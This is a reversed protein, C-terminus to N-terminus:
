GAARPWGIRAARRLASRVVQRHFPAILLIYARGLRNHCHVVTSLVLTPGGAADGGQGRRLVSLRFDLHRDDEGLLVERPNSAYVKFIGIRGSGSGPASLQKATKLGFGAVLADRLAMLWGVWPAQNAFMFRALLDADAVADDPLRVEFADALDPAAYLGAVASEPPLGVPLVTTAAAAM